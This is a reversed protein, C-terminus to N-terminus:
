SRVLLKTRQYQVAQRSVRLKRAIVVDRMTWDVGSWDVVRRRVKFRRVRQASVAGQSVGLERALVVNKKSWDVAEWGVRRRRFRNPAHKRRLVSVRGASYGLEAALQMNSKSWDAGRIREMSKAKPLTDPAYRRRLNAVSGSSLGHERSLEASSRSWDFQRPDIKPGLRHRRKALAGLILLQEEVPPEETGAEWTEYTAVTLSRSIRWVAEEISRDGRLRRLQKCFDSM